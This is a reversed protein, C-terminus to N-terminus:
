QLSKLLAEKIINSWEISALPELLTKLSYLHRLLSTVWWRSQVRVTSFPSSKGQSAGWPQRAALPQLLIWSAGQYGGASRPPGAAKLQALLPSIIAKKLYSFSQGAPSPSAMIHHGLAPCSGIPSKLEQHQFHPARFTVKGARSHWIHGNSFLTVIQETQIFIMKGKAVALWKLLVKVDDSCEACFETVLLIYSM